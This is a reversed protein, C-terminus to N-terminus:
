LHALSAMFNKYFMFMIFCISFAYLIKEVYPGKSFDLSYCCGSFQTVCPLLGHLCLSQVSIVAVVTCVCCVSACACVPVSLAETPFYDKRHLCKPSEEKTPKQAVGAVVSVFPVLIRGVFAMASSDWLLNFQLLM